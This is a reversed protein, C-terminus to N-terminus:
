KNLHANRHYFAECAPSLDYVTKNFKNCHIHLWNYFKCYECTQGTPMSVIISIARM